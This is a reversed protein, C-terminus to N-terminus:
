DSTFGFSNGEMFALSSATPQVSIKFLAFRNGSKADAKSFDFVLIANEALDRRADIGTKETSSDIVWTIFLGFVVILRIKPFSDEPKDFM